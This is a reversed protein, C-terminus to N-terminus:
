WGITTQNEVTDSMHGVIYLNNPDNTIDTIEIKTLRQANLGFNFVDVVIPCFHHFYYVIAFFMVDGYNVIKVIM